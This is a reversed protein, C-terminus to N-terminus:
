TELHTTGTKRRKAMATGGKGSQATKMTSGDREKKRELMNSIHNSSKRCNFTEHM